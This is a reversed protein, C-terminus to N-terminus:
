SAGASSEPGEAAVLWDLYIEAERVRAESVERGSNRRAWGVVMRPAQDKAAEKSKRFGRWALRYSGRILSKEYFELMAPAFVALGFM